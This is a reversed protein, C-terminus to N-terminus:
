VAFSRGTGRFSYPYVKRPAPLAAGPALIQFRGDSLERPEMQSLEPGM